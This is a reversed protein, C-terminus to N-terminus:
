RGDANHIAIQGKKNIDILKPSDYHRDKTYLMWPSFKSTGLRGLLKADPANADRFELTTNKISKGEPQFVAGKGDAHDVNSNLVFPKRYVAHTNRSIYLRVRTDGPKMQLRKATYFKTQGHAYLVTGVLRLKGAEDRKIIIDPGEEDGSHFGVTRAEVVLAADKAAIQAFPWVAGPILRKGLFNDFLPILGNTAYYMNYHIIAGPFLKGDESITAPVLSAEIATDKDIAREQPLDTYVHGHLFAQHDLAKAAEFSPILPLQRKVFAFGDDNALFARAQSQPVSALSSHGSTQLYWALNPDSLFAREDATLSAPKRASVLAHIQKFLALIFQDRQVPFFKEESDFHFVPAFASLVSDVSAEDTLGLAAIAAARDREGDKEEDKGSSKSSKSGM